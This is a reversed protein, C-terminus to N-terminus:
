PAPRDEGLVRREHGVLGRRDKIVALPVGERVVQGIVTGGLARDCRTQIASLYFDASPWDRVVRFRPDLFTSAQVSEACVAVALGAPASGLDSRVLHNLMLSAERLSDSWYDGEYREFAGRPGGVIHNYAIYEYPHLRKLLLFNDAAAALLLVVLAVWAPRYPRALKLLGDLGIGGLIALPPLVFSFHRVGNYLAPRTALSFVIPFVAALLLPTWLALSAPNVARRRLAVVGAVLAGGLGLLSLEPLRILLYRSLYTSPVDGIKVLQGDLETMMDFSFHSFKTAADFLNHWGMLAWPWSVGTLAVFVILLVALRPLNASLEQWTAPRELGRAILLGLLGAGLYLVAFLGGVRLGLAAGLALGTGLVSTWRLRPWDSLARTGFYVAWIMAAGFPIDKTHTFMAGSWAGTLSLLLAALFGARPSVLHRGTLYCALVASLGFLATILHRLDWVSLSSHPESWAAIIDFFGGYLYLNVYKFARLDAFGSRYFELLLRGYTHQVPEDNSIGHQDFGAAVYLLLAGFLAVTCARWLLSTDAFRGRTLM